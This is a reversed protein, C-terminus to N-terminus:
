HLTTWRKVREELSTSTAKSILKRFKDDPDRSLLSRVCADASGEDHVEVVLPKKAWNFNRPANSSYSTKRAELPTFVDKIYIRAGSKTKNKARRLGPLIHQVPLMGIIKTKRNIYSAVSMMDGIPEQGYCLEWLIDISDLFWDRQNSTWELTDSLDTVIREKAVPYGPWSEKIFHSKATLTIINKVIVVMWQDERTDIPPRNPSPLQTHPAAVSSAVTSSDESDSNQGPAPPQMIEGLDELGEENFYPLSKEMYKAIAKKMSMQWGPLPGALSQSVIEASNVNTITNVTISGITDLSHEPNTHDFLVYTQTNKAIQRLAQFICGVPHKTEVVASHAVIITSEESRTLSVILRRLDGLFGIGTPRGISLVVNGKANLGQCADVTHIGTLQVHKGSKRANRKLESIFLQKQARYFTIYHLEKSTQGSLNEVIKYELQASLASSRPQGVKCQQRDASVEVLILNCRDLGNQLQMGEEKYITQCFFHGLTGKLRFSKTLCMKSKWLLAVDM